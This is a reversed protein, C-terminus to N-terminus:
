PTLRTRHRQGSAYIAELRAKAADKREGLEELTRASWVLVAEQADSRSTHNGGWVYSTLGRLVCLLFVLVEAGADPKSPPAFAARREYLAERAQHVAPVTAEGDCWRAVTALVSEPVDDTLRNARAVEDHIFSAVALLGRAVGVEAPQGASAQAPPPASADAERRAWARPMRLPPLTRIAAHLADDDISEAALLANAVAELHPRHASLWRRVAHGEQRILRDRPALAEGAAVLAYFQMMRHDTPEPSVRRQLLIGEAAAGALCWRVGARARLRVAAAASPDTERALANSLAAPSLHAFREGVQRALVRESPAITVRAVKGFELACLLGHGAEHWADRTRDDDVLPLIV